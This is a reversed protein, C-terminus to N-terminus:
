VVQSAVVKAAAHATRYRTPKFPPRFAMCGKHDDRLGYCYEGTFPSREMIAVVSEGVSVYTYRGIKKTTITPM